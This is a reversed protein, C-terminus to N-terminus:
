YAKEGVGGQRNEPRHDPRESNFKCKVELVDGPTYPEFDVHHEPATGTIFRTNYAELRAAYRAGLLDMCRIICDVLEVDVGHFQPLHCDQLNKRHAELAEALESTSLMLMEGVNRDKPKGTKPDIWWQKNFHHIAACQTTLWEGELM